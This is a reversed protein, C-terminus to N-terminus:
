RRRSPCADGFAGDILGPALMGLVLRHVVGMAAVALVEVLFM